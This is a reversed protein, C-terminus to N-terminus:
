KLSEHSVRSHCCLINFCEMLEDVNMKGVRLNVEAEIERWIKDSKNNSMVLIQM